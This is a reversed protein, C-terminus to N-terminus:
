THTELLSVEWSSSCLAVICLLSFNFHFKEHLIHQVQLKAYSHMRFSVFCHRQDQTPLLGCKVFVLVFMKLLLGEGNKLCWNIVSSTLCLIRDIALCDFLFYFPCYIVIIVHSPDRRGGLLLLLLPVM